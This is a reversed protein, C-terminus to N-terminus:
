NGGILEVVTGNITQDEIRLSYDSGVAVREDGLYYGEDAKHNATVEVTFVALTNDESISVSTIKGFYVTSGDIDFYLEKRVAKQYDSANEECPVAFCYEISVSEYDTSFYRFLYYAGFIVGAVMALILVTIIIDVILPLKKRASASQSRESGGSEKAKVERLGVIYDIQAGGSSKESDAKKLNKATKSQDHNKLEPM